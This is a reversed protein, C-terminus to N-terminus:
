EVGEMYYEEILDDKSTDWREWSMERTSVKLDYWRTETKKPLLPTKTV